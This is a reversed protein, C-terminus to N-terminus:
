FECLKYFPRNRPVVQICIALLKVLLIVCTVSLLIWDVRVRESIYTSIEVISKVIFMIFFPASSVAVVLKMGNKNLRENREMGGHM